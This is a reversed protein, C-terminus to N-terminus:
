PVILPMGVLLANSKALIHANAGRIKELRNGDSSVFRAIDSLSDHPRVVYIDGQGHARMVRYQAAFLDHRTQYVENMLTADRSHRLHEEWLKRYRDYIEAAAAEAAASDLTGGDVSPLTATLKSYRDNLASLDQSSKGLNERLGTAEEELQSLRTRAEDREKTVSDVNSRLAVSQTESDTLKNKVTALAEDREQAQVQLTSVTRERELLEKKLLALPAECEKLEGRVQTLTVEQEALQKQLADRAETLNQTKQQLHSMEDATTHARVEFEGLTEGCHHAANMADHVRSEQSAIMAADRKSQDRETILNKELIAIRTRAALLDEELGTARKQATLGDQRIVAVDARIGELHRMAEDRESETKALSARLAVLETHPDALATPVSPSPATPPSTVAQPTATTEGAAQSPPMGSPGAVKEAGIATTSATTKEPEVAASPPTVVPAQAAGEQGKAEPSVTATPQNEVSTTAKTGSAPASEESAAAATFVVCLACGLWWRKINRVDRRQM